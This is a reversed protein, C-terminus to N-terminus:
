RPAPRVPSSDTGSLQVIVTSPAVRLVRVGTPLSVTKDLGTFAVTGAGVGQADLSLEIGTKDLHWLLMAPGSVRFTVAGPMIKDAHLSSPINVVKVPVSLDIEGEGGTSVNLWLLLALLLALAKFEINETMWGPLNM